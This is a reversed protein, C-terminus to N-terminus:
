PASPLLCSGNEVVVLSGVVATQSAGATHTANNLQLVTAAPTALAESGRELEFVAAGSQLAQIGGGVGVSTPYWHSLNGAVRGCMAGQTAALEIGLPNRAGPAGPSNEDNLDVHNSSITVDVRPSTGADPTEIRVGPQTANQTFFDPDGSVLAGNAHILLRAQSVQGATSSFRGLIAPATSTAPADINNNQITARIISTSSANGSTQGLRIGSLSFGSLTNGQITSTIDADAANTLVVGEASRAIDSGTITMTLHASGTALGAVSALRNDRIQCNEILVTAQATDELLVHVGSGGVTPSNNAVLCDGPTPTTRNIVLGLTGSQGYFAVNHQPGAEIQTNTITATTGTVLGNVGGPNPLGFVIPAEGASTGSTVVRSNTLLFGAVNRAVIGGNDHRSIEMWHFAPSKTNNLYIGIGETVLGDAGSKRRIVGGSSATADGVVTLGGNGAGVGTTDLSIVVGNSYNTTGGSISRFTLGAAGIETNAVRLAAGFTTALTNIITTNNQTAVITGGGTAVFADNVGTSLALGGSFTISAGSNANLYVGTGGADSVAGSFTIAGGTRNEILIARGATNTVAAGVNVTGDGAGISVEAVTAGSFAGGTVTLTGGGTVTLGTTGGTISVDTLSASTTITSVVAAAAGGNVTLGRASAGNALTMTGNLIPNTGAAISLLNVSLAAGAGHMDENGRLTTAGAYTGAHVYIKQGATSAAQAAAVSPFPSISRGDGTVATADVYWVISPMNITVVATDTRNTTDTVTYTFTDAGTFGAPPTYTFTGNSAMAVSGGATSVIGAPGATLTVGTDNTLVNGAVVVAPTAPASGGVVYQTNGVGNLYTDDTADPLQDVVLTFNQVVPPGGASATLTLPYSGGTGVAPTGALTATGNGNDTFTVGTPLAGTRTITTVPPTGTTTVTFTGAQGVPFMTTAASTFAANQNVSLVFSQSASVGVGNSASLTVPYSGQSGPAPTGALTATGNGNDTFTVGAPLAGTLSLTPVPFGTTTVTFTGPAGVSFATAASSTIAPAAEVILTFNQVAPTGGSNATLTLPFSGGPGTPTGALTATGNGNDTFTVGTPLAGTHTLSTVPPTGTTTVTFTGAQGVRFTTIAASTFAANQNVSLVFSQSASAGVGNGASLTVPYSGQSGSTPTGALTATGNGNDTFTVGTPLAGTLSLTPVPFGTATVTFTGPAGVSFATAASSTFAPAAQVNLTFSQTVSPGGASSATFTLPFTGGPGAPTGALTATGNGNDTFTVGAPLAGTRTLTTVPPTGATTVTFTGAQGVAFTTTAASSFRVRAASPIAVFVGGSYPPAYGAFARIQSFGAGSFARVESGGGPGPGTIIDARGDGDLDGAAVRVGANFAAGYPQFTTVLSLTAIDYVIVTGSGSAPGLIVDARGDGTVDGAAVFAALGGYPVGSVIPARTAGDVISVAGGSLQGVFLDARGDSNVDGLALTVGGAYGAGFPALDVLLAYNVGSFVRVSGGGPGQSVGIDNRGDGDVDGVAVFLGGGFGPGFPYGAGLNAITAGDFVQVLGGGPGMAAVLDAVQDGNLDGAAMRAGGGFPGFPSGAGLLGSSSGDFVRAPVSGDGSLVIDPVSDGGMIFPADARASPAVPVGAGAPQQARPVALAISAFLATWLLLSSLRHNTIM